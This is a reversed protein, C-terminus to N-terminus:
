GIRLGYRRMFNNIFTNSFKIKKVSENNSYKPQSQLDKGVLSIIDYTINTKVWVKNLKEALESQFQFVSPSIRRVKSTNLDVTTANIQRIEKKQKLIRTITTKHIPRGFKAAFDFGLRAGSLSKNKEAHDVIWSKRCDDFYNKEKERRINKHFM